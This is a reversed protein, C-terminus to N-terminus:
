QKNADQKPADQKPAEGGEAKAPAGGPAAGPAGGQGQAQPPHPAVPMGPKLKVLNDVIVKEGDKLGKTVVWQSGQWSQAEVPRPEVKNDAGVVMVLKAKDNVLVAGQPVLAGQEEGLYLRAKIFQGPIIRLDPNAVEARLQVTGLARDVTSAQFNLKAPTPYPKGNAFILDVRGNDQNNGRLTEYEAETVAFRVWVPDTQTITTLLASDSGATVLSGESNINRGSIGTIPAVVQTYSLNLAANRVDAERAQVNAEASKRSSVQDDYEKGSVAQDAALPKLRKEERGAQEAQAKAQALAARANALAIEYQAPDIQYLVSGGKVRDGETFRQKLLIGSVRARVQVERSGETQGVSEVTIPVRKFQVDIATVPLAQGGGPGGPGGAHQEEKKGCAALGLALAGTALLVAARRLHRPGRPSQIASHSSSSPNMAFM